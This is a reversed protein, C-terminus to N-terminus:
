CSVDIKRPCGRQLVVALIPRGVRLIHGSWGFIKAITYLPSEKRVQGLWLAVQSDNIGLTQVNRGLFIFSTNSRDLIWKAVVLADKFISQVILKPM